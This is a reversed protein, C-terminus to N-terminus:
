KDRWSTSIRRIWAEAEVPAIRVSGFVNRTPLGDEIWREVKREGIGWKAALDKKKMLREKYRAALADKPMPGREAAWVDPWSCRWEGRLRVGRLTGTQLHGRITRAALAYHDAVAAVSLNYTHTHKM